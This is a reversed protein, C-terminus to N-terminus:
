RLDIVQSGKPPIFTFKSDEINQNIKIEKLMITIIMGNLDVIQIKNVVFEKNAWLKISNFELALGKPELLIAQKNKRNSEKIISVDCQSPYEMIYKEMSFASPDDAVNNVIVRNQSENYNWLSKDDSVITQSGLEVRFKNVKKYYFKGSSEFAKTETDHMATQSFDAELDHISQFKTQIDNLLKDVDQPYILIPLFFLVSLLKLKM